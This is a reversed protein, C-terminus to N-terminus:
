TKNPVPLGSDTVMFRATNITAKDIAIIAPQAFPHRLRLLRGLSLRLLSFALTSGDNKPPITLSLM